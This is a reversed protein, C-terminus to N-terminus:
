WGQADWCGQVQIHFLEHFCIEAWVKKPPQVNETEM